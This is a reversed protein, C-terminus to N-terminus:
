GGSGEGRLRPTVRSAPVIRGAEDVLAARVPAGTEQDVIEVPGPAGLLHDEGWQTLAIFSLALDRGTETLVYGNRAREGAERYPQKMLLDRAILKNLRDTLISRPIGTDSRIDDFRIVGYFAERLILMTWRDGLVEAAAALACADITVPARRRVANDADSNSM